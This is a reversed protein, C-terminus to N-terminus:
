EDDESAAADEQPLTIVIAPGSEPAAEGDRAGELALAARELLSPVEDVAAGIVRGVDEADLGAYDHLIAAARARADIDMLPRIGAPIEDQNPIAIGVRLAGLGRRVATCVLYFRRHRTPVFPWEGYAHALTDDIVGVTAQSDATLMVVLRHLADTQSEVFPSFDDEREAMARKFSFGGTGVSAEQVVPLLVGLCIVASGVMILTVGASDSRLVIGLGFSAAGFLTLVITRPSSAAARWARERVSPHSSCSM